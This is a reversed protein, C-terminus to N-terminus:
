ESGEVERTIWVRPKNAPLFATAKALMSKAFLPHGLAVNWEVRVVTSAFVASFFSAQRTWDFSASNGKAKELRALFAESGLAQGASGVWGVDADVWALLGQAVGKKVDQLLTGESARLELRSVGGAEFRLKVESPNRTAGEGFCPEILFEAGSPLLTAFKSGMRADPFNLQVPWAAVGSRELTNGRARTVASTKRGQWFWHPSISPAARGEFSSRIDSWTAEGLSYRVSRANMDELSALTMTRASPAWLIQGSESDDTRLGLTVRVDIIGSVGSRNRAGSARLSDENQKMLASLTAIDNSQLTFWWQGNELTAEKVLADKELDGAVSALPAVDVRVVVRRKALEERKNAALSPLELPVPLPQVRAKRFSSSHWLVREEFDDPLKAKALTAEVLREDSWTTSLQPQDDQGSSGSTGNEGNESDSAVKGAGMEATQLRGEIAEQQGTTEDVLVLGFSADSKVEVRGDRQRSLELLETSPLEKGSLGPRESTRASEAVEIVKDGVRIRTTEQQGLARLGLSTFNRFLPLGVPPSGNDKLKLNGVLVTVLYDPKLLSLAASLKVQSDPGIEFRKGSVLLIEATSGDATSITNGDLVEQGSVVNTWVSIQQSQVLVKGKIAVVKGIAEVISFSRQTDVYWALLGSLVALWSVFLLGQKM